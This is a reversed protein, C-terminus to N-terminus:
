ELYPMKSVKVSHYLPLEKDYGNKAFLAEAENLIRERTIQDKKNM